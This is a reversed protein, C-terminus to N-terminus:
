EQADIEGVDAEEPEEEPEPEADSAEEAAEAEGEPEAAEAAAEAEVQGMVTMPYVDASMTDRFITAEAAAEAEAETQGMVTMPYVDTPMTDRFITAEAAQEEIVPEAQAPTGAPDIEPSATERASSADVEPVDEEDVIEVQIDAEAADVVSAFDADQAPQSARQAKQAAEQKLQAIEAEMADIAEQATDIEQCLQLFFGEPAEKHAEYYLRGIEAYASKITEKQSAIDVNLKAVRSLQKTKAAAYVALGKAKNAAAAAFVSAKGKIDNKESM